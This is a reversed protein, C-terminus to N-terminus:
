KKNFLNKIKKIEMLLNEKQNKSEKTTKDLGQKIRQLTSPSMYKSINPDINQLDMEDWTKWRSDYFRGGPDLKNLKNVPIMNPNNSVLPLIEFSFFVADPNFSAFDSTKILLRNAKFADSIFKRFNTVGYKEFGGIPLKELAWTNNPNELDRFVERLHRMLQIKLDAEPFEPDPGYKGTNWELFEKFTKPKDGLYPNQPAPENALNDFNIMDENFDNSSIEGLEERLNFGFRRPNIPTPEYNLDEPKYEFKELEPSDTKKIDPNRTILGLNVKSYIIDKYEIFKKSGGTYDKEIVDTLKKYIVDMIKILEENTMEPYKESWDKYESSIHNELKERLYRFTFSNPDQLDKIIMKDAELEIEKQIKESHEPKLESIENKVVIELPIDYDKAYQDCKNIFDDSTRWGMDEYPLKGNVAGSSFIPDFKKFYNKLEVLDKGKIVVDTYKLKLESRELLINKKNLLLNTKAIHRKKSFSM